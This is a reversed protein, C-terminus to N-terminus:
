RAPGPRDAVLHVAGLLEDGTIRTWGNPAAPRMVSHVKLAFHSSRPDPEHHLPLNFYYLRTATGFRVM